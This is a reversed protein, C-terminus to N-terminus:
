HVSVLRITARNPYDSLKAYEGSQVEIIWPGEDTLVFAVSHKEATAELGGFPRGQYVIVTATAPAAARASMASLNLMLRCVLAFGNCNAASDDAPLNQRTFSAMQRKLAPLFSRRMWKASVVQYELNQLPSVWVGPPLSRDFEQWLQEATVKTGVPMDAPASLHLDARATAVTWAFVVALALCRLAFPHPRFLVLSLRVLASPGRPRHVELKPSGVAGQRRSCSVRPTFGAAGSAYPVAGTGARFSFSFPRRIRACFRSVPIRPGAPKLGGEASQFPPSFDARSETVITM